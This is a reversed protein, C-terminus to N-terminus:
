LLRRSRDIWIAYADARGPRELGEPLEVDEAPRLTQIVIAADDDGPMRDTVELRVGTRHAVEDSLLAAAKGPLPADGRLVISASTLDLSGDDAAIVGGSDGSVSWAGSVM